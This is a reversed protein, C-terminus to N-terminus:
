STMTVSENMNLERCVVSTFWLIVSFYKFICRITNRVGSFFDEMAFNKSPFKWDWEAMM